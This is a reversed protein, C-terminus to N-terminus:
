NRRNPDSKQLIQIFEQQMDIWKQQKAIQGSQYRIFLCCLGICGLQSFICILMPLFCPPLDDM